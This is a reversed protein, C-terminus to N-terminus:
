RSFSRGSSAASPHVTRPQCVAAVRAGLAARRAEAEPRHRNWGFYYRDMLALLRQAGGCDAAAVDGSVRALAQEIPLFQVGPRHRLPEMVAEDYFRLTLSLGVETLELTGFSGPPAPQQRAIFQTRRQDLYEPTAHKEHGPMSRPGVEQRAITRDTLGNAEIVVVSPASDALMCLGGEILVTAPLGDMVRALARGQAQRLAVLRDPYFSREDAVAGIRGGRGWWQFVPLPLAALPLLVAAVAWQARPRLTEVGALAGVLFLPVAPVLRRAYMFDGGTRVVYAAFVAATALCAGGVLARRRERSRWGLVVLLAALGLVPNRLILLALYHLGQGWYATPVSKAYFTNPLWDGYYALRLATAGAVAVAAPGALRVTAAGAPVGDRLRLGLAWAGLVAGLLLADPRLLFLLAGLAGGCLDRTPTREGAFLVAAMAAAAAAVSM